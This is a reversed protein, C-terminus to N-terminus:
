RGQSDLSHMPPSAFPLSPQPSPPPTPPDLWSAFRKVARDTLAGFVGGFGLLIAAEAIGLPHINLFQIVSTAAVTGAFFALVILPLRALRVARAARPRRRLENPDAPIVPAQYPNERVAEDYRAPTEFYVDCILGIGTLKCRPTIQNCVHCRITREPGAM